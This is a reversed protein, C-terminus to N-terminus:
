IVYFFQEYFFATETDDMIFPHYKIRAKDVDMHYTQIMGINQPYLYFSSVDSEEYCLNDSEVLAKAEIRETCKYTIDSIVDLDTRYGSVDPLEIVILNDATLGIGAGFTVMVDSGFETLHFTENYVTSLDLKEEKGVTGLLNWSIQEEGNENLVNKEYVAFRTTDTEDWLLKLGITRGDVAYITVECGYSYKDLAFALTRTRAAYYTLAEDEISEQWSQDAVNYYHLTGAGENVLVPELKAKPLQMAYYSMANPDEDTWLSANKGQEKKKLAVQVRWGAYDYLSVDTLLGADLRYVPLSQGNYDSYAMKVCDNKRILSIRNTEDVPSVLDIAIYYDVGSAAESGDMWIFDLEAQNIEDATVVPNMSEISSTLSQIDPTMSRSPITQMTESGFDGHIYNRILTGDAKALARVSVAVIDKEHFASLDLVAKRQMRSDDVWNMSDTVNIFNAPLVGNEYFTNLDCDASELAYYFMKQGVRQIDGEENEKVEVAILYGGLDKKRHSDTIANWGLEYVIDGNDATIPQIYPAAITDLKTKASLTLEFVDSDVYYANDAAVLAKASFKDTFQYSVDSTIGGDTGYGTIDPLFLELENNGNMGLWAGLTITDSGVGNQSLGFEEFDFTRAYVSSLDLRVSDSISGLLQWDNASKHYVLFSTPQAPDSLLKLEVDTNNKAHVFLEYGVAYKDCAISITKTRVVYQLSDKEDNTWAWNQKEVDYYRNSGTTEQVKPKDLKVNPLQAVYYSIANADEDTWMSSIANDANKKLAVRIWWGAYDAFSIDQLLDGKITYGLWKRENSNIESLRVKDAKQTLSIVKDAHVFDLTKPVNQGCVTNSNDIPSANNGASTDVPLVLDVAIYYSGDTSVYEADNWSFELWTNNMASALMPRDMSEINSSLKNMDPTPLRSPITQMTSDGYDGHMFRRVGNEDQKALARVSIELVDKEVFESLNIVARKQELSDTAWAFSDTINRYNDPLKGAEYFYALDCENSELAYYYIVQGVRSLDKDENGVVEAKILYGGLDATELEDTIANWIVEYELEDTNYVGDIKKLSIQPATITDLKQKLLYDRSAAKPFHTTIGNVEKGLRVVRLTLTAYNWNDQEDVFAYRSDTIDSVSKLLVCEGNITTGFLFADYVAGEYNCDEDWLFLYVNHGNEQLLKYQKELVPASQMMLKDTDKNYCGSAEDYVFSKTYVHPNSFALTANYFIHYTDDRNKAVVYGARLFGNEDVIKKASENPWNTDVYEMNNPNLYGKVAEVSIYDAVEHGMQVGYGASASIYKRVSFDKGLLSALQDNLSMTTDVTFGYKFRARIEGDESAHAIEIGLEEDYVLLDTRVFLNTDSASLIAKYALEEESVGEFNESKVRIIEASDKLNNNGLLLGTSVYESSKQYGEETQTGSIPRAITTISYDSNLGIGELSFADSYRGNRIDITKEIGNSINVKVECQLYEQSGIVNTKYDEYNDIVIVAKNEPTIELHVLPIALAKKKMDSTAYVYDSSFAKRASESLDSKHKYEYANVARVGFRIETFAKGNALAELDERTLTYKTMGMVFVPESLKAVVTGKNLLEYYVEYGYASRISQWSFTCESDSSEIALSAPASLKDNVEYCNQLFVQYLDDFVNYTDKTLYYDTYPNEELKYDTAHPEGPYGYLNYRNSEEASLLAMGNPDTFLNIKEVAKAENFKKWDQSWGFGKLVVHGNQPKIRIEIKQVTKGWSGNLQCTFMDYHYGNHEYGGGWGNSSSFTAKTGTQGDSFYPVVEGEYSNIRNWTQYNGAMSGKEYADLLLSVYRIEDNEANMVDITLVLTGDIGVDFDKTIENNFIDQASYQYPNDKTGIYEYSADFYISGADAESITKGLVYNNYAYTAGSGHILNFGRRGADMCNMMVATNGSNFLEGVMTNITSTSYNRCNILFVNKNVQGCIGGTATSTKFQGTNVCNMFDIEQPSVMYEYRGMIGGSEKGAVIYGHNICGDFIIAHNLDRANGLIGAVTNTGEIQAYNTCAKFYAGANKITGVMGGVRWKGYVTGYNTCHVFKKQTAYTFEIRGIMGGASPNQATSKHNKDVSAYNEVWSMSAASYCFGIIGGYEECEGTSISWKDGTSLVDNQDTGSVVSYARSVGAIGGVNGAKAYIEVSPNQSSAHNDGGSIEGNNEGCIGGVYAYANGKVSTSKNDFRGLICNKIISNQENIGVIGGVRAIASNAGEACVAGDFTCNKIGVDAYEGTDVSRGCIGGTGNMPSNLNGTVNGIVSIKEILGENLGAVGGLNATNSGEFGINCYVITKPYNHNETDLNMGYIRGCNKGVVGGVNSNNTYTRVKCGTGCDTGTLKVTGTGYNIGVVLGISSDKSNEFDKVNSNFIKCGEVKAYNEAVIGGIVEKSSFTLITTSSVSNVYCHKLSATTNSVSGNVACIGGLRGGLAEIVSYNNCYEIKGLNTACIGAADGSVTASIKKNDTCDNDCCIISFDKTSNEGLIGGANGFKASVGAQNTFYFLRNQESSRNLGIIGGVVSRGVINGGVYRRETAKEDSYTLDNEVTGDNIGVIGGVYDGSSEISIYSIDRSVILKGTNGNYAAFFGAVGHTGTSGAKGYVQLIAYSDMSIDRITGYNESAIGGVMNKGTITRNGGTCICDKIVADKKNLGCLGGLYLATSNGVSDIACNQITGENLECLSGTYTAKSATITAIRTNKCADIVTNKSVKGVIGGAYSYYFRKEVGEYDTLRGPQENSNEIAKNAVIQTSNSIDKLLLHVNSDCFGIVGGVYLDATIKGFRNSVSSGDKPKIQLTVDDCVLVSSDNAVFGELALINDLYDNQANQMATILRKDITNAWDYTVTADRYLLNYGIFGGVFQTGKIEGLFNNTMFNTQITNGPVSVDQMNLVNGGIIGGVFYAGTVENPNSTIQLPQYETDMMMHVSANYGVYGGAFFSDSKDARVYGGSVQYDEIIGGAANYGVVGGIYNKGTVYCTLSLARVAPLRSDNIKLDSERRITNGIIGANYGAIGGVCSGTYAYTNRFAAFITNAKVDSNCNFIWGTNYGSIGGAFAETAYVFGRNVWNSLRISTDKDAKPCVIDNQVSAVAASCGTIGGVYKVGLVNADNIGRSAGTDGDISSDAPGEHFGVIGGVFEYGLIYGRTGREAETSCNSLTGYYNYGVIGGVYVGYLQAELTAKDITNFLNMLEDATYQPSSTCQTITLMSADATKLNKAYGIIGGIYKADNPLAVTKSACVKGYNKCMSFVVSTTGDAPIEAMGAMGGVYSTGEVYARNICNEITICGSSIQANAKIEFYGFVGGVYSTGTVTSMNNSNLVKLNDVKGALIGCFAGVKDAGKVCINDMSLSQIVGQNEVIWGTAPYTMNYFANATDSITLGTICKENGNVSMNPWLVDISLFEKGFSWTDGPLKTAYYIENANTAFDTWDIDANLEFAVTDAQTYPSTGHLKYANQYRASINRINFLHRANEVTYSYDYGGSLNSKYKATKFYVAEANSQKVNTTKFTAATGYVTCFINDVEIGFRRFGMTNRDNELFADAFVSQEYDIADLVVHMANEDDLWAMIKYTNGTLEDTADVLTRNAYNRVLTGDFTLSLLETEPSLKDFIKIHYTLMNIASCKIEKFSLNLTEENILMVSALVPKSANQMDKAYNTEMSLEDVGYYGFKNKKCYSNERRCISTDNILQSVDSVIPSIEAFSGTDADYYSFGEADESYCVAFVVGTEPCLEVSIAADLLATDYLYSELLMFLQKQGTKNSFSGSNNKYSAYDGPRCSLYVITGGPLDNTIGNSMTVSATNWIDDYHNGNQDTLRTVDLVRLFSGSSDKLEDSFKELVGASEWETLQNQAAIYMSKAIDNRKTLQSNTVWNVIGM